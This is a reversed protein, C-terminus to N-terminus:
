SFFTRPITLLGIFAQPGIGYFFGILEAVSQHLVVHFIDTFLQAVHQQMNGEVSLYTFFFLLEVHCINTIMQYVFEYKTVRM